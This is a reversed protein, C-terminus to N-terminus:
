FPLQFIKEPQRHRSAKNPLGSWISTLRGSFIQGPVTNRNRQQPGARVAHLPFVGPRHSNQAQFIAVSGGSVPNDALLETLDDFAMGLKGIRPKLGTLIDTISASNKESVVPDNGLKIGGPRIGPIDSFWRQAELVGEESLGIGGSLTRIDILGLRMLEEAINKSASKDLGAENGIEHTSVQKKIDGCTKIFLSRFFDLSSGPLSRAETM